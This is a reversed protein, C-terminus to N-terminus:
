VQPYERFYAEEEHPQAQRCSILRPEDEGDVWVLVVVKGKALGLSVFRQEGDTRAAAIEADIEPETFPPELTSLKNMTAFLQEVQKKKMAERLLQEMAEPRLLGALQAQQALEDPLSVTINTM